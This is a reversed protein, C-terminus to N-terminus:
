LYEVIIKIKLAISNNCTHDHCIGMIGVIVVIEVFGVILFYIM